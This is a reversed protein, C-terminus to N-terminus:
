DIVRINGYGEIWYEDEVDNVEVMNHAKKYIREYEAKAEEYRKKEEDTALKRTINIKIPFRHRSFLRQLNNRRSKLNKKSFQQINYIYKNIHCLIGKFNFHIKLM